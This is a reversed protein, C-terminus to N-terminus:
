LASRQTDSLSLRRYAALYKNFREAAKADFESLRLANLNDELDALKVARAIPNASCREVFAVYTDEPRRTVLALAELVCDPFHARDRLENLTVDTDEITDHLVAVIQAEITVQSSMVRLPHLIYPAGAKDVQGEHAFAAIAVARELTGPGEYSSLCSM